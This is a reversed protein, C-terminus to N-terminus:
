EALKSTKYTEPHFPELRVIQPSLGVARLDSELHEVYEGEQDYGLAIIDPRANRIHEVYGEADGIVAADVLAHVALAARRAEEGHKPRAGKIREVSEDRAASVILYPRPALARAQEFLNEHGKHIMDFTGFVMIRTEPETFYARAVQADGEIAERLKADDTFWGEERIFRILRARLEHGYLSTGDHDFLHTELIRRRMDVYALADYRKGGLWAEAVYSGGGVVDDMAINATPFGLAKARESGRKVVGSYIHM